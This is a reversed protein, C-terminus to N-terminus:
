QRLVTSAHINRPPLAPLGVKEAVSIPLTTVPPGRSSTWDWFIPLLKGLYHSFFPCHLETRCLFTGPGQFAPALLFCLSLCLPLSLSCSFWIWILFDFALDSERAQNQVRLRGQLQASTDCEDWCCCSPCGQGTLLSHVLYAPLNNLRLFFSLSIAPSM